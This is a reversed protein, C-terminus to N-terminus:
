VTLQVNQWRNNVYKKTPCKEHKMKHRTITIAITINITVIILQNVTMVM